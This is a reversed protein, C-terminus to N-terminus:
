LVIKNSLHSKSFVFSKVVQKFTEIHRRNVMSGFKYYHSLETSDDLPNCASAGEGETVIKEIARVASVYSDVKFVEDRVEVQPVNTHYTIM